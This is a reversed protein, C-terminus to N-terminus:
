KDAILQNNISIVQAKKWDEEGTTTVEVYDKTVERDGNYWDLISGHETSPKGFRDVLEQVTIGGVYKDDVKKALKISNFDANRWKKTQDFESLPATKSEETEAESEEVQKQVLAHIKQEERERIIRSVGKYAIDLISVVILFILIKNVFKSNGNLM